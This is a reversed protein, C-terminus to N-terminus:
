SVSNIFVVSVGRAPKKGSNKYSHRKDGPFALVDEKKFQFTEGLVAITIQGEVCTFYKKTGEIHPSSTM